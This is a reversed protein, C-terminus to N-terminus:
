RKLTQINQLDGLSVSKINGGGREAWYLTGRIIDLSIPNNVNEIELEKRGNGDYEINWIKNRKTECFYIAQNEIDIVFDNFPVTQKKLVRFVNTGDLNIRIIENEATSFFLEGLLPDIQLKKPKTLQSIIVRRFTGDHRSVEILGRKQDTWYVNQAIWDVAIGGLWDSYSTDFDLSSLITQRSSGDKKIRLIEGKENDSYYIFDHPADFDFTSIVNVRQLPTFFAQHKTHNEIGIGKLEYGLSYVLFDDYGICKSSDRPDAMYGISCKCVFGSQGKPICLHDCKDNDQYMCGNIDSSDMTSDTLAMIKLQKINPTSKRYMEPEQCNSKDCRRISSTTNEGFYIFNDFVELSTIFLDSYEQHGLGKEGYFTNVLKTSSTKLDWYFIKRNNKVFYLRKSTSDFALSQVVEDEQVLLKDDSGDM